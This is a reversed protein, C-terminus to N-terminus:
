ELYKRWVESFRCNFGCGKFMPAIESHKYGALGTGIATVYFKKNPNNKTFDVFDLVRKHIESLPLAKINKDKTPIAYSKGQLGIGKYYEAGYFRYAIEAAGAGHIGKLNSGFVFIENETPREYRGFFTPNTKNFNIFQSDNLHITLWDDLDEKLRNTWFNNKIKESVYYNRCSDLFNGNNYKDQVSISFTVCGNSKMVDPPYRLSNMMSETKHIRKFRFTYEKCLNKYLFYLWLYNEESESAWKVDPYNYSYSGLLRDNSNWLLRHVTSLIKAAKHITKIVLIDHYHEACKKPDLDLIIINM